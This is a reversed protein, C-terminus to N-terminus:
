PTPPSQVPSMAESEKAILSHLRYVHRGVLLFIIGLLGWSVLACCNAWLQFLCGTAFYLFVIYFISFFSSIRIYKLSPHTKRRRLDEYPKEFAEAAQKNAEFVGHFKLSTLLGLLSLIATFILFLSLLRPDIESPNKRQIYAISAGTIAVYVTMYAQRLTEAHRAHEWRQNYIAIRESTKNDEM